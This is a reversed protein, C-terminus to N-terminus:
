GDKLLKWKRLTREIQLEYLEMDYENSIKDRHLFEMDPDIWQRIDGTFSCKPRDIELLCTKAKTFHDRIVKVENSLGADSVTVHKAIISRIGIVALRALGDKSLNPVIFDEFLRIQADRYSMGNLFGSVADKDDEFAKAVNGSM